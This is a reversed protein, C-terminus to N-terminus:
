FRTAKKSSDGNDKKSDNSGNLNGNKNRPICLLGILGACILALITQIPISDVSDSNENNQEVQDDKAIEQHYESSTGSVIFSSIVM